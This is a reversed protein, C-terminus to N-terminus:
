VVVFEPGGAMTRVGNVIVVAGILLAQLVGSVIAKRRVARVILVSATGGLDESGNIAQRGGCCIEDFGM